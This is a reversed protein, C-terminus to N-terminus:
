LKGLEIRVGREIFYIKSISEGQIDIPILSGGGYRGSFGIHELGV